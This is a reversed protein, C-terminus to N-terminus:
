VVSKRDVLSFCGECGPVRGQSYIVDKSKVAKGRPPQKGSCVIGHECSSKTFPTEGYFLTRKQSCVAGRQKPSAKTACCPQGGATALPRLLWRHPSSELHLGATVSHKVRLLNGDESESDGSRIQWQSVGRTALEHGGFKLCANTFM